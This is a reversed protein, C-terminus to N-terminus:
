MMHTSMTGFMYWLLQGSISCISSFNQPGTLNKMTYIAVYIKFAQEWRHLGNIPPTDKESATQLFQAGEKYVM